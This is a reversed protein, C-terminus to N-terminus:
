SVDMMYIIAANTHPETVETWARYRKDDRVPIVVPVNPDYTGSSIMRKLARKEM